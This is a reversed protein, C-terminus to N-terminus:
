IYLSISVTVNVSFCPFFRLLRSIWHICLFELISQFDRLFRSTLELLLRSRIPIDFHSIQGSFLDSWLPNLKNKTSSWVAILWTALLLVCFVLLSQHSKLAVSFLLSISGHQALLSVILRFGLIMNESRGQLELDVPPIVTLCGISKEKFMSKVTIGGTSRSNCPLLSFIIKPNRRITESKAWCPDIERKNETASLDCWLRSTKQTKSRAVQNIATQDVIVFLSFGRVNCRNGRTM